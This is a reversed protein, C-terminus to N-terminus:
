HRIIFVYEDEATNTGRQIGLQKYSNRKYSYWKIISPDNSYIKLMKTDTSKEIANLFRHEYRRNHYESHILLNKIRACFRDDYVQVSSIIKDYEIDIMIYINGALILDRLKNTEQESDQKMTIDTSKTKDSHVENQFFLIRPLDDLTAKVIRTAKIMKM